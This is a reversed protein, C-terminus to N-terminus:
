PLLFGAAPAVQYAISRGGSLPNRNRRQETIYHASDCFGQGSIEEWEIPLTFTRDGFSHEQNQYLSYTANDPNDCGAGVYIRSNNPPSTSTDSTIPQEFDDAWAISSLGNSWVGLSSLAVLVTSFYFRM